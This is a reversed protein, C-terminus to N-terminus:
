ASKIVKLHCSGDFSYYNDLAEIETDDCWRILLDYGDTFVFGTVFPGMSSVRAQVLDGAKIEEKM